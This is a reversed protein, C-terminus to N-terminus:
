RIDARNAMPANASVIGAMLSALEAAMGAVQLPSLTEIL